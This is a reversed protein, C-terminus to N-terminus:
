YLLSCLSKDEIVSTLVGYRREKNPRMLGVDIPLLSGYVTSAVKLGHVSFEKLNESNMVHTFYLVQGGQNAM